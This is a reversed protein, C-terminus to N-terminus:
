NKIKVPISTVAPEPEPLAPPAPAVPATTALAPVAVPAKVEDNPITVSSEKAPQGSTPAAAPPMEPAPVPPASSGPASPTQTSSAPEEKAQEEIQPAQRLLVISIRRNQAANPDKTDIPERDALGIVRAVRKEEVGAIVLEQRSRNARETSLSWNDRRSGATFPNSDTHGTVTINNPLRSIVRGVLRLLERSREFPISSGSPFMSFKDKDMIQIRLGEPTRDILLNDAYQRLEPSGQIANKLATETTKFTDEEIKQAKALIESNSLNKTDEAKTKAADPIDGVPNQTEGLIDEEGEEAKGATPITVDEATVSTRDSIMAGPASISQGGLMGGAGGESKSISAPAFYDAIGKREVDTTVNLLWLLLFFAMMATVFDAYAVKWAGGHHGHGGGKKKKRIIIVPAQGSAM